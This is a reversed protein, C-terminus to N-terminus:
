NAPDSPTEGLEVRPMKCGISVCHENERPFVSGCRPCVTKKQLTLDVPYGLGSIRMVRDGIQYIEEYKRDLCFSRKKGKCDLVTFHAYTFTDRGGYFPNLRKRDINEYRDELQISEVTGLWGKRFHTWPKLWWLPFVIAVIICIPLMSPSTPYAIVAIAMILAVAILWKAILAAWKKNRYAIIQPNYRKFHAYQAPYSDM